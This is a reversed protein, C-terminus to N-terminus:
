TAVWPKVVVRCGLEVPGWDVVLRRCWRDNEIIMVRQLYDLLPKIPNDCDFRGFQDINWTVAAEFAGKIHPRPRIAMVYPDALRHWERVRPSQNGLKKVFLNVSPPQPLELVFGTPATGPTARPSAAGKLGGTRAEAADVAPPCSGAGYTMGRDKRRM